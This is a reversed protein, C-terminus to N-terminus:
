KVILNRLERQFLKGIALVSNRSLAQPVASLVAKVGGPATVITLTLCPGTNNRGQAFLLGNLKWIKHKSELSSIIGLNSVELSDGRGNPESNKSAFEIWDERIFACLGIDMRALDRSDRLRSQYLSAFEELSSSSSMGTTEMWFQPGVLYVGLDKPACTRENVATIIKLCLGGNSLIGQCNRFLRPNTRVHISTARSIAAVCASNVTIQRKRCSEKLVSVENDNVLSLCVMHCTRTTTQSYDHPMGQFHSPERILRPFRDILVPKLLHGLRPVTDMVDEMPPPLQTSVVVSEQTDELIAQVVAMAGIGDTIVHHFALVLSFKANSSDLKVLVVRWLSSEPDEDHWETCGEEELIPVLGNAMGFEQTAKITVQRLSFFDATTEDNQVQVFFDDGWLQKGSDASLRKQSDVGMVGDRKIKARLWPFQQQIRRLRLRLDDLTPPAQLSELEVALMFGTHHGARSHAVYWRELLGLRRSNRGLFTGLKRRIGIMLGALAKCLFWAGLISFVHHLPWSSNSWLTVSVALCGFGIGTYLSTSM